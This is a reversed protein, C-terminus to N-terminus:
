HKMRNQKPQYKYMAEIQGCCECACACACVYHFKPKFNHCAFVNLFRHWGFLALFRHCCNVTLSSFFVCCWCFVSFACRFVFLAISHILFKNFFFPFQSSHREAGILRARNSERASLHTRAHTRESWKAIWKTKNFGIIKKETPRYITIYRMVM